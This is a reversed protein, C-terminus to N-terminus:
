TSKLSLEDINARKLLSLTEGSGDSKLHQQQNRLKRIKQELEEGVGLQEALANNKAIMQKALQQCLKKASVLDCRIDEMEAQKAEVVRQSDALQRLLNRAVTEAALLKERLRHAEKVEFRQKAAEREHNTVTLHNFQQLSPLYFCCLARCYDESVKM